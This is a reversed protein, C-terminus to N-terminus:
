TTGTTASASSGFSIFRCDRIDYRETVIRANRERAQQRAYDHLVAGPLTVDCGNCDRMHVMGAECEHKAQERRAATAEDERRRRRM